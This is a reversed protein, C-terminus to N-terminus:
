HGIVMSLETTVEDTDKAANILSIITDKGYRESILYPTM